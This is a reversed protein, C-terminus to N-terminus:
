RASSRDRQGGRFARTTRPHHVGLRGEWRKGGAVVGVIGGVILGAGAGLATYAIEPTDAREGEGAGYVTGGLAGVGFGLLAGVLGSRATTRRAVHLSDLGLMPVTRPVSDGMLVLQNAQAAVLRGTYLSGSAFARIEDGSRLRRTNRSAPDGAVTDGQAVAPAPGCLAIVVLLHRYWM